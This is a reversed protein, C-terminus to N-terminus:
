FAALLLLRGAQGGVKAVVRGDDLGLVADVPAGTDSRAVETGDTWVRVSGDYGGSVLEDGSWAVATVSAGHGEWTAPDRGDADGFSHIRGSALGVAIDGDAAVAIASAASSPDHLELRGDDPGLVEVAGVEGTLLRDAAWAMGTPSRGDVVREVGGSGIGVVAL